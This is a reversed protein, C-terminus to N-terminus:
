ISANIVVGSGIVSWLKVSGGMRLYNRLTVRDLAERSSIVTLQLNNVILRPYKWLHRRDLPSVYQTGPTRSARSPVRVTLSAFILLTTKFHAYRVISAGLSATPRAAGRLPSRTNGLSALRNQFQLLNYCISSNALYHQRILTLCNLRVYM